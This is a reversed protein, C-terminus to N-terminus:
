LSGPWQNYANVIAEILSKKDASAIKERSLSLGSLTQAVHRLRTVSMSKLQALSHRVPTDPAEEAPHEPAQDAGGAEPAPAFADPLCPAPEEASGDEDDPELLLIRTLEEDPRAIVHESVLSAGKIRGIAAVAADVSARVASVEGAITITVLGGSALNKELLSVDAAKLMADAGEIAALLGKTEVLGLAMM